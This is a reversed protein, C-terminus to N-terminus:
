ANQDVVLNGVVGKLTNALDDPSGEPSTSLADFADTGFIRKFNAADQLNKAATKDADSLKIDKIQDQKTPDNLDKLYIRFDEATLQGKKGDLADLANLSTSDKTLDSLLTMTEQKVPVPPRAPTPSQTPFVM